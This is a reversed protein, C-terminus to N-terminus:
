PRRVVAVKRRLRPEGEDDQGWALCQLTLEWVADIRGGMTSPAARAAGARDVRRSNELLRRRTDAYRDGLSELFLGVFDAVSWGAPRGTM